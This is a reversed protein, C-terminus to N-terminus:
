EKSFWNSWIKGKTREISLATEQNYIEAYNYNRNQYDNNFMESVYEKAELLTVKKAFLMEGINNKMCIAYM